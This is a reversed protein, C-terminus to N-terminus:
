NTKRDLPPTQPKETKSKKEKKPRKNSKERELRVQYLKWAVFGILVLVLIGSIFFIESSISIVKGDEEELIVPM